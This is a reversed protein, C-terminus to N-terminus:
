IRWRGDVDREIILRPQREIDSWTEEEAELRHSGASQRTVVRKGPQRHGRASRTAPRHRRNRDLLEVQLWGRVDFNSEICPPVLRFVVRRGASRPSPHALLGRQGDM